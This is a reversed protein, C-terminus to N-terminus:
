AVETLYQLREKQVSNPTIVIKRDSSFTYADNWLDLKHSLEVLKATDM